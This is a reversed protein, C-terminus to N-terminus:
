GKLALYNRYSPKGGAKVILLQADQLFKNRM